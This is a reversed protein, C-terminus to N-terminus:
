ACIHMCMCICMYICVHMYIYTCVHMYTCIYMDTCMCVHVYKRVGTCCTCICARLCTQFSPAAAVTHSARSSLLFSWGVGQGSCDLPPNGNTALLGIAQGRSVVSSRLIVVVFSLRLIFV